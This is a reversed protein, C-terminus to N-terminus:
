ITGRFAIAGARQKANININIAADTIEGIFPDFPLTQEIDTYRGSTVDGRRDLANLRKIKVHWIRSQSRNNKGTYAYCTAATLNALASCNSLNSITLM